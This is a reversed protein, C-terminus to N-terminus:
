PQVHFQVTEIEEGEGEKEGWVKAELVLDTNATVGNEVSLVFTDNWEFTGSTANINEDVPMSYIVVKDSKRYIRVNVHHVTLGSHSEFAIDLNLTDGLYKNDTNPSHVHAHYEYDVNSDDDDKCSYFFLVGSFLVSFLLIKKM